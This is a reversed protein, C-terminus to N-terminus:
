YIIESALTPRRAGGLGRLVQLLKTKRRLGEVCRRGRLHIINNERQLRSVNQMLYDQFFSSRQMGRGLECACIPSRKGAAARADGQLASSFDGAGAVEPTAFHLILMKELSLSSHFCPPIVHFFSSLFFSLLLCLAFM